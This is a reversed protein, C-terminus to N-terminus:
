STNLTVTDVHYVNRLTKTRNCRVKIKTNPDFALRINTRISVTEPINLAKPFSCKVNFTQNACLCLLTQLSGLCMITLTSKCVPCKRICIRISACFTLTKCYVM